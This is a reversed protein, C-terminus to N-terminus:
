EEKAWIIIRSRGDDTCSELTVERRGATDRTGYEFDTSTTYYKNYIVYRLRVGTTDTIYIEDGNKLKDNNSFLSGNRYNHGMIVTNGIKNLGVGYLVGVSVKMSSDTAVTLVPYKLKIAPIEIKGAVDYGKYKLDVTKQLTTTSPATTNNPETTTTPEAVTVNAQMTNENEITNLEEIQKDFDDLVENASVNLYHRQFFDYGWFGLVVIIAFVIIVLIVTLIKNFNHKIM